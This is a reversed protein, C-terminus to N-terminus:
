KLPEPSPERHGFKYSLVARVSHIDLDFDADAREDITRGVVPGLVPILPGSRSSSVGETKGDLSTYRYEFKLSLPNSIKTEVGGGVTFGDLEDDLRVALSGPTNVGGTVAPPILDDIFGLPDRFSVNITPDDLHVKTYAALGYLLTSPTALFGLRGGATFSWDHEINAETTITSLPIGLNLVGPLVNLAFDSQDSFEAELDSSFDADIFAGAVWRYGVQQDYALQVTGFYGTDGFSTDFNNSQSLTALDVLGLVDITDDRSASGSLEADLFAVGGGVGVSFGTWESAHTCCPFPDTEPGGAIAPGAISLLATSAAICLAAISIQRMNQGENNQTSSNPM